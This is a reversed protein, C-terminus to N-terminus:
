KQLDLRLVDHGLGISLDTRWVEDYTEPSVNAWLLAVVIAAALVGSSGAETRLFARMPAAFGRRWVTRGSLLGSLDAM